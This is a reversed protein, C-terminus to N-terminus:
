PSLPSRRALASPLSSAHGACLLTHVLSYFLYDVLLLLHSIHSSLHATLLDYWAKLELSLPTPKITHALFFGQVSLKAHFCRVPIELVLGTYLGMMVPLSRLENLGLGKM